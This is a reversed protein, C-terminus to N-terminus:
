QQDNQFWTQTTSRWALTRVYGAENALFNLSGISFLHDLVKFLPIIVRFRSNKKSLVCTPFRLHSYKTADFYNIYLAGTM